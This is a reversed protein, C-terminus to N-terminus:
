MYHKNCLQTGKPLKVTLAARHGVGLIRVELTYPVPSEIVHDGIIPNSIVIEYEGTIPLKGSWDTAGSKGFGELFLTNRGRIYERTQVWFEASPSEHSTRSSESLRVEMIQGVRGRLRYTHTTGPQLTQHLVVSSKGRKFKLYKLYDKGTGQAPILNIFLCCAVTFTLVIKREIGLLM